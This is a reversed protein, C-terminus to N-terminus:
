WVIDNLQKKIYHGGKVFAIENLRAPSCTHCRTGILNHVEVCLKVLVHHSLYAQEILSLQQM